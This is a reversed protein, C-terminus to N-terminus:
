LPTKIEPSNAFAKDYYDAAAQRAQIYENLKLLKVRLFAAQLTDLRSNVGVQQYHYKKSQGHHAIIKLRAALEEDNTLMAGGDGMCGLNKSPFFSTTGATGMFGAKVISGDSAKYDAGIAQANDEIIYLNHQLALDILPEMNACQGFLHV